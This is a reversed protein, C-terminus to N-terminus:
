TLSVIPSRVCFSTSFRSDPVDSAPEEFDGAYAIDLTGNVPRVTALLLFPVTMVLPFTACVAFSLLLSGSGTFHM